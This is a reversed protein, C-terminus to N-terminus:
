QLREYESIRGSDIETLILYMELRQSAEAELFMSTLDRANAGFFLDFLYEETTQRRSDRILQIAEVINNRAAEPNQTFLDLGHRYYRYMGRRYDDHSSSLVGSILYFRNRRSGTGTSWGLAGTSQAVDLVGQARRYYETGGMESFSDFDLGLLFYAYFDIMSAIDDYQLLDHNINRNRAYNFRWANDSIVVLQTLQLTNYIPRESTVIITADFNANSETGLIIQINMRIREHDEFRHDTWNHNNIYNEILPVLDDLYDLSTNTIQSKNLTVNAVFEQAYASKHASLFVAITLIFLSLSRIKV